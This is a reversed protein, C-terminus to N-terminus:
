RNEPPAIIIRTQDALLQCLDKSTRGEILCHAPNDAVPAHRVTLGLALPVSAFLEGVGAVAPNRARQRTEEPTTLHALDVSISPEPQGRFYYAGRNIIGDKVVDRALRRYLRDDPAIVQATEPGAATM